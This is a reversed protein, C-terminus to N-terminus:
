NNILLHTSSMFLSLCPVPDVLPRQTTVSRCGRHPRGPLAELTLRAGADLEVVCELLDDSSDDDDDDLGGGSCSSPPPSHLMPGEMQDDRLMM